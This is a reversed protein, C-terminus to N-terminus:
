GKDSYLARAFSLTVPDLRVTPSPFVGDVHQRNEYAISAGFPRSHLARSAVVRGASGSAGGVLERQSVGNGTYFIFLEFTSINSGSNM